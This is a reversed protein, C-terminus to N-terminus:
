KVYSFVLTKDHTFAMLAGNRPTRAQHETLRVAANQIGNTGVTIVDEGFGATM